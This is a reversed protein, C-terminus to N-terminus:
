LNNIREKWSLLDLVVERYDKEFPYGGALQVSFTEEIKDWEDGLHSWALIVEDLAKLFNGM